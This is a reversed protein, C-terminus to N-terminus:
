GREKAYQARKLDLMETVLLRIVPQLRHSIEAAHFNLAELSAQEEPSLEGSATFVATLNTELLLEAM